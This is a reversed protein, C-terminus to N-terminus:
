FLNQIAEVIEGFVSEWGGGEDDRKCFGRVVEGDFWPLSGDRTGLGRAHVCSPLFAFTPTRALGGSLDLTSTLPTVVADLAAVLAASGDLDNLLDVHEGMDLVRVGFRAHIEALEGAAAEDYQLRVFHVRRAATTAALPRLLPGLEAVRAYAAARQANRRRSRWALGVFFPPPPAGGGEPSGGAALARLTRRHARAAAEDARLYGFGSARPVPWLLWPLARLPVRLLGRPGTATAARHHQAKGPVPPPRARVVVKLGDEKGERQSLSRDLLAAIKYHCEAIVVRQQQEGLVALLAPVLGFYLLEDGVSPRDAWVLVGAASGRLEALREARWRAGAAATTTTAPRDDFLFGLVDLDHSSSVGGPIATIHVQARGDEKGDEAAARPQVHAGWVPKATAQLALLLFGAELRGSALYRGDVRPFALPLCDRDHLAIIADQSAEAEARRGLSGLLNARRYLALPSSASAPLAALTDALRGSALVDAVTVAETIAYARLIAQRSRSTAAAALFRAAAEAPRGTAALVDGQLLWAADRTAQARDRM